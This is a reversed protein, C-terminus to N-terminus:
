DNDYIEGVIEGNVNGYIHGYVDGYILSDVDGYINGYIDGYIPYGIGAYIDGYVNGYITNATAGAMFSLYDSKIGYKLLNVFDNDLDYKEALDNIANNYQKVIEEKDDGQKQLADRYEINIEYAKKAVDALERLRQKSLSDKIVLNARLEIEYLAFDISSGNITFSRPMTLIRNAFYNTGSFLNVELYSDIASNNENSVDLYLFTDKLDYYLDKYEDNRLIVPKIDNYLSYGYAYAGFVVHDDYEKLTMMADKETYNNFFFVYKLGCAINIFVTFAMIGQIVRRSDICIKSFLNGILLLIIALTSIIIVFKLVFSFDGATGVKNSFFRYYLILLLLLCIGCRYMGNFSLLNVKSLIDFGNMLYNIILCFFVFPLILVAKRFIYDNTALTQFFLGVVAMFPFMLADDFEKYARHVIWPLALLFLALVPMYFLFVNAGWFDLVTAVFAKFGASTANQYGDVSSFDNFTNLANLLFNTNWVLKYYIECLALATVGGAVAGFLSKRFSAVDNKVLYICGCVIIPVFFFVNTLYVLQMSAAILITASFYKVIISKCRLFFDYALLGFSMRLITPEVVRSTILFPFSITFLFSVGVVLWRDRELSSGYKKVLFASVHMILLLNLLAILVIPVRFGYYNDGIIILGAYVMLNMLVNNKLHYATYSTVTIGDTVDVVPNISDYNYMNLGMFGYLGEDPANYTGVGYQPLDKDLGIFRLCFLLVVLVLTGYYLSNNKKSKNIVTIFM